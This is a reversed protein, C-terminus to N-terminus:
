TLCRSRAVAIPERWSERDLSAAAKTADHIIQQSNAYFPEGYAPPTKKRSM